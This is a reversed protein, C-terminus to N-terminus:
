QEQATQAFINAMINPKPAGAGGYLPSKKPPSGNPSEVDGSAQITRSQEHSEDEEIAQLFDRSGLSVGDNRDKSVRVDMPPNQSNKRLIGKAHQINESRQSSMLDPDTRVDHLDIIKSDEVPKLGALM